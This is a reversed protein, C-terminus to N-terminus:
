KIRHTESSLICVPAPQLKRTKEKIKAFMQATEQHQV